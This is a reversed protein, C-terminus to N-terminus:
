TVFNKAVQGAIVFGGAFFVMVSKVVHAVRSCRKANPQLPAALM